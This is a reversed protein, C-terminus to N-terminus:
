ATEHVLSVWKVELGGGCSSDDCVYLELLCNLTKKDYSRCNQLHTVPIFYSKIKINDATRDILFVIVSFFCGQVLTQHLWVLNQQM